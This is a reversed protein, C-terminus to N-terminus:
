IIRIECELEVGFQRFVREKIIDILCLVDKASANGKNVIFGAHKESVQAGGVTLGKLGCEDIMKAAYGGEPRKFVSGANPYEHPQSARRKKTYEDMTARISDANGESLKLGVRTIVREKKNQYESYRYAFKHEAANIIVLKKECIDYYESYELVNSIEGGYAGANMYVAGACSGPIGCAFELGSLGRRAATVSVSTLNAGADAVIRQADNHSIQKMQSTFILMGSYGDDLFLINSGNGIVEFESEYRQALELSFILEDVNKPFTALACKGGIAFTSYEKLSINVRCKVGRLDLLETMETLRKKDLQENIMNM